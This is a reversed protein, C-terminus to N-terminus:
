RHIVSEWRRTYMIHKKLFAYNKRMMQTSPTKKTAKKPSMSMKKMVVNVIQITIWTMTRKRRGGGGRENEYEVEDRNNMEEEENEYVYDNKNVDHNAYEYENEYAYDNHNENEGENPQENENEMEMAIDEKTIYVDIVSLPPFIYLGKLMEDNTIRIIKKIGYREFVLALKMRVQKM